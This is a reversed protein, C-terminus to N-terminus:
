TASAPITSTTTGGEARHRGASRQTFPATAAAVDTWHLLGDPPLYPTDMLNTGHLTAWGLRLTLALLVASTDSFGVLWTPEAARWRTGTSSTSSTSRSARRGM